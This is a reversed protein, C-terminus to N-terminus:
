PTPAVYAWKSVPTTCTILGYDESVATGAPAGAGYPLNDDPAAITGRDDTPNTPTILTHTNTKGKGNVFQTKAFGRICGAMVGVEYGYDTTHDEKWFYDRQEALVGAQAGLLVNNATTPNLPNDTAVFEHEFLVVNDYMGLSGDFLRNSGGRNGAFTQIRKWEDSMKLQRAAYPHMVLIYHDKGDVKIPRIKPDAMRAMEKLGSITDLTIGGTAAVVRGASPTATLKTFIDRDFFEIYWNKIQDKAEKRMDYWAQYSRHDFSDIRIGKRYMHVTIDMYDETLSDENGQLKENDIKPDGGLKYIIPFRVRDGAGKGKLSTNTQIISNAGTGTFRPFFAEAWVDQFLTQSWKKLVLESM